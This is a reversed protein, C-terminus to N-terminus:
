VTLRARLLAWIGRGRESAAQNSTLVCLKLNPRNKREFTPIQDLQNFLDKEEEKYRHM